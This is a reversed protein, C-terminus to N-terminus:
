ANSFEEMMKIFKDFLYDNDRPGPCAEPHFQVSFASSDKLCIGEVTNDNLNIHTIEIKDGTVSEPIVAYGHNQSTIYVRGEKIDKVPHNGGRHGYILKETDAGCALSLLQHGLCIGFIPKKGILSKINEIANKNDKPDGPGNSLLIGDPDNSLIREPATGAPFVTVMCGRALLSDIINKKVGFDLLAVHFSEGPLCYVKETTVYEVHNKVEFFKLEEIEETSPMKPIIMGMMTGQERIKRTLSRTDIGNIAAVNNKMLYSQLSGSKLWNSPYECAERVIFGSVQIKDSQVDESNVGYNGVLPYTMVVIQGFYSPDTLVEQYGTMSTNFVVEGIIKKEAGINIGEYISGDALVLFAM